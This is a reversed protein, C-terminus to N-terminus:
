WDAVDVAGREGARRHRQQSAADGVAGEGLEAARGAINERCIGGPGVDGRAVVARGLRENEAALVGKRMVRQHEVPDAVERVAIVRGVVARLHRAGDVPHHGVAQLINREARGVAGAARDRDDADIISLSGSLTAFAGEETYQASSAVTALTPADNVGVVTITSSASNSAGFPINQLGDTGGWDITRTMQSGYDTPNDGNALYAVRDLVLAYHAFTDQGSLILTETSSNYSATINTGSTNASLVDGTAGGFQTFTGNAISGGLLSVTAGALSPSDIDTLTIGSALTVSSQQETPQTATGVLGTLTALSDFDLGEPTSSVSPATLTITSSATITLGTSDLQEFLIQNNDQDSIILQRSSEDFALDNPFTGVPYNAVKVPTGGATSVEWIANLTSTADPHQSETAFYVQNHITDVTVALIYGNSFNLPFLSQAFLTTVTTPSNIDVVYIQNQAFPAPIMSVFYIKDHATDLAMDRIDFVGAPGNIGTQSMLSM